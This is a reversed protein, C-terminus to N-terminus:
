RYIASIISRMVALVGWLLILSFAVMGIYAFDPTTISVGSGDTSVIPSYEGFVEIFQEYLTANM